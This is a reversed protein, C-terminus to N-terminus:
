PTSTEPAERSLGFEYIVDDGVNSFPIGATGGTTQVKDSIGDPGFSVVAFRDFRADVNSLNGNSFATSIMETITAPTGSTGAASGIIGVPSYFRYANGWPDMPYDRQLTAADLQSPANSSTDLNGTFVRPFTVWPGEWNLVLRRVRPDTSNQNITPQIQSSADQEAFILLISNPEQDIADANANSTRVNAPLDDLLQLPVYFGHTAAVMQEGKALQEVEARATAFRAQQMRRIAVPVAMTALIGLIVLAALLETFTVARRM